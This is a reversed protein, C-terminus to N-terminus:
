DPDIRGGAPTPPCAGTDSVATFCEGCFRPQELADCLADAFDAYSLRSEARSDLIGPERGLLYAGTPEEPSFRLPPLFCTCGAGADRLARMPEREDERVPHAEPLADASGVAILRCRVSDCLINLTDALYRTLEPEMGTDVIADYKELLRRLEASVCILEDCERLDEEVEFLLADPKPLVDAAVGRTRCATQVAEALAGDAAIIAIHM